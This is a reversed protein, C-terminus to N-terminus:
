FVHGLRSVWDACVVSDWVEGMRELFVIANRIRLGLGEKRVLRSVCLAFGLGSRDRSM